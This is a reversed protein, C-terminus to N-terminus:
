LHGRPHFCSTYCTSCEWLMLPSLKYKHCKNIHFFPFCQLGESVSCWGEALRQSESLNESTSCLCSLTDITHARSKSGAKMKALWLSSELILSGIFIRNQNWLVVCVKLPFILCKGQLSANAFYEGFDSLHEVYLTKAVLCGCGTVQTKYSFLYLTLSSHWFALMSPCSFKPQHVFTCEKGKCRRCM